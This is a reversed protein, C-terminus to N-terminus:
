VELAANKREDVAFDALAGLMDQESPETEACLACQMAAQDVLDGLVDLGEINQNAQMNAIEDVLRGVHDLVSKIQDLRWEHGATNRVSAILLDVFNLKDSNGM